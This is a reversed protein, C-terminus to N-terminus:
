VASFGGREQLEKKELLYKNRGVFCAFGPKGQKERQQWGETAKALARAQQIKTKMRTKLHTLAISCWPIFSSRERPSAWGLAGRGKSLFVLSWTSDRKQVQYQTLPLLAPAARAVATASCCSPSSTQSIRKLGAQSVLLNWSMELTNEYLTFSNQVSLYFPWTDQVRSQLM